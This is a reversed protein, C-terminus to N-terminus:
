AARQGGRPSPALAREREMGGWAAGVEARAARAVVTAEAWTVRRADGLDRDLWEALGPPEGYANVGRAVAEAGARERETLEAPAGTMEIGGDAYRAAGLEAARELAEYMWDEGMGRGDGVPRQLYLVGYDERIAGSFRAAYTASEGAHVGWRERVRRSVESAAVPRGADLLVTAMLVVAEADRASATPSLAVAGRIAAFLSGRRAEDREALAVARKATLQAAVIPAEVLRAREALEALSRSASGRPAARGERAAAELRGKGETRARHAVPPLEGTMGAM